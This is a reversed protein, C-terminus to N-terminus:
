NGGIRLFFEVTGRGGCVASPTLGTVTMGQERVFDMLDALVREYIEPNKIRGTRRIDPDQVEFLPKVLCLLEGGAALLSAM